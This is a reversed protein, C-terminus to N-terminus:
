DMLKSLSGDCKELRFSFVESINSIKMSMFNYLKRVYSTYLLFFFL